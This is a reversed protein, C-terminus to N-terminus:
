RQGWQGRRELWAAYRARMAPHRVDEPALGQHEFVRFALDEPIEPAAEGAAPAIRAPHPQRVHGVRRRM